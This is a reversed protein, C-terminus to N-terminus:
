FYLVTFYSLIHSTSVFYAFFFSTRICYLFIVMDLTDAHSTKLPAMNKPRYRLVRLRASACMAILIIHLIIAFVGAIIGYIQGRSLSSQDGRSRYLTLDTQALSCTDHNYLLKDINYNAIPIAM